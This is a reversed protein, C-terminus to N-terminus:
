NQGRTQLLDDIDAGDLAALAERIAQKEKGAAAHSLISRALGIRSDTPTPVLRLDTRKM